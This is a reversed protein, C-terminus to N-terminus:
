VKLGSSVRPHNNLDNFTKVHCFQEQLLKERIIKDQKFGHELFLMGGTKLYNKAQEIILFLDSFGENKSFLANSPEYAKVSTEIYLDDQDIYPPNSLIIDFQNDKELKSFWDSQIFNIDCDIDKANKKAIDLAKQSIDTASILWNPREKKLAIALAGSGTGLDIVQKQSDKGFQDLISEVLLESDARPILVHHNVYVEFDWFAQKNIIYAIPEGKLRREILLQFYDYEKESLITDPYTKLYVRSKNLVYSLLIEVDLRPSDSIGKLQSSCNLILKNITM